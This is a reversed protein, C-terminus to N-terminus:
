TAKLAKLISKISLYMPTIVPFGKMEGEVIEDVIQFGYKEYFPIADQKADVFVGVCGVLGKQELALELVYLLLQRGIGQGQATMSVALRGLRLIPLPYNIPLKSAEPIDDTEISGTAVTAYGLIAEEDEAIAIYTVGIHHRFQNQGAYRHFFYDLEPQGCSFGKRNDSKQLPRILVEM